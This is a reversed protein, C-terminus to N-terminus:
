RSVSKDLKGTYVIYGIIAPIYLSFEYTFIREQFNPGNNNYCFGTYGPATYYYLPKVTYDNMEGICIHVYVCM